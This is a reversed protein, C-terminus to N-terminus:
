PPLPVRRVYLRSRSGPDQERWALVIAGDPDTALGDVTAWTTPLLADFDAVDAWAASEFRRVALPREGPAAPHRLAYAVIPAGAADVALASNPTTVLDGSTAEGLDEWADGALRYVRVGMQQEVAAFTEGARAAVRATGYAFRVSAPLPLDQWGPSASATLRAVRPTFDSFLSGTCAESYAVLPVGAADFALSPIRACRDNEPLLQGLLTWGGPDRRAVHLKGQDAGQWGVWAVHVAGDPAVQVDLGGGTGPSGLAEFGWIGERYVQVAPTGLGVGALVLAGDPAATIRVELTMEPPLEARYWGSDGATLLDDWWRALVSPPPAPDWAVPFAVAPKGGRGIALSATTAPGYRDVPPVDVFTIAQRVDAANGAADAVEAVTVELPLARPDLARAATSMGVRVSPGDIAFETLDPLGGVGGEVRLNATAIPEDFTFVAPTDEDCRAGAGPTWSVVQPAARDATDVGGDGGSCGMLALFAAAVYMTRM